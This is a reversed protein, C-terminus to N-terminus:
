ESRILMRKKLADMFSSCVPNEGVMDFLRKGLSDWHPHSTKYKRYKKFRCYIFKLVDDWTKQPVRPYCQSLDKAVQRGICFLSVYYRDDYIGTDYLAQTVKDVDGEKFAGIACLIRRMNAKKPDRWSENLKCDSRTVEAIIVYPKNIERFVDEDALPYEPLEKRFPFRVGLVEIDTREGGRMESHLVFNSITLFGNLRFYWYAVKEPDMSNLEM